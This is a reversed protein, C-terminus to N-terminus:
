GRSQSDKSSCSLFLLREIFCLFHPAVSQHTPRWKWPGRLRSRAVHDTRPGRALFVHKEMGRRRAWRWAPQCMPWPNKGPEQSSGHGWPHTGSGVGRVRPRGACISDTGAETRCAFALRACFGAWLTADETFSHLGFLAPSPKTRPSSRIGNGGYKMIRPTESLWPSPIIQASSLQGCEEEDPFPLTGRPVQRQGNPFVLLREGDWDPALRFTGPTVKPPKGPAGGAPFAGPKHHM